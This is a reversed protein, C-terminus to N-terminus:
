PALNADSPKPMACEDELHWVIGNPRAEAIGNARFGVLEVCASNDDYNISPVPIGESRYLDLESKLTQRVAQKTTYCILFNSGRGSVVTKSRLRNALAISDVGLLSALECLFPNGDVSLVAKDDDSSEATFRLNGLHLIAGIVKWAAALEDSTAGLAKLALAVEQLGQADHQTVGSTIESNTDAPRLYTFSSAGEEM